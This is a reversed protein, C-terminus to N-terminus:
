GVANPKNSTELNGPTQLQDKPKISTRLKILKNLVDFWFPGGLSIAFATILYGLFSMFAKHFKDLWSAYCSCENLDDPCSLFSNYNALEKKVENFPIDEFESDKHTEYFNTAAALVTNRMQENESLDRAIKITDVNFCVALLLGVVFILLSIKRKYWGTFRESYEEFWNQLKYEFKELDDNCQSWLNNLFAKTEPEITLQNMRNQWVHMKHWHDAKRKTELLLQKFSNQANKLPINANAITNIKQIESLIYDQTTRIEELDSFRAKGLNGNINDVASANPGKVLLNLLTESFAKSSMYSPKSQFSNKGMYKIAPQQYFIKHLGEARNNFGTIAKKASQWLAKLKTSAEESQKEDNLMRKIGTSLNRARLGLFSAIAEVITTALLSYLLFLFVLSIFIDLITLGTM